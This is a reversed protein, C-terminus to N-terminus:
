TACSLSQQVAKHRMCGALRVKMNYVRLDSTGLEFTTKLLNRTQMWRRIHSHTM